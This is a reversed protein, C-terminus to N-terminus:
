WLKHKRQKGSHEALKLDKSGTGGEESGERERFEDSNYPSVAMDLATQFALRKM